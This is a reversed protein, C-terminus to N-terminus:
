HRYADLISVYCLAILLLVLIGNVVVFVAHPEPLELFRYAGERLITLLVLALLMAPWAVVAWREPLVGLSCLIGIALMGISLILVLRNSQGEGSRYSRLAILLFFSGLLIDFIGESSFTFTEM